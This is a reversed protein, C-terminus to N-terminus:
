WARNGTPKNRQVDGCPKGGPAAPSERCTNELHQQEHIRREHRRKNIHTTFMKECYKCAHRGEAAGWKDPQATHDGALLVPPNSGTTSSTHLQMASGALDLPKEKEHQELINSKYKYADKNASTHIHMHRELGPKTSFHRECHQCQFSDRETDQYPSNVMDSEMSTEEENMDMEDLDENYGFESIYVHPSDEM